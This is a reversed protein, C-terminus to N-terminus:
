RRALRGALAALRARVDPSLARWQVLAIASLAALAPPTVLAMSIERAYAFLAAGTVLCPATGLAVDRLIRARWPADLSRVVYALPVGCSGVVEGLLIALGAAHLGLAKMGLAAVGLVVVSQAVNATSVARLHNISGLYALLPTGLMRLSVALALDAFLGRDFPLAHRTWLVYLPALVPLVALIGLQIATGGLLWSAGFTAGLKDYERKVHFRVMEPQLPASLINAAQLFTSAVTRATAIVPLAAAGLAGTVLLNLGNQQLQAVLTSVTLVLSKGFNRAGVAADAGAHMPSLDPFQRRLDRLLAVYYLLSAAQAVLTTGLIGLGGLAAGAIAVTQVVRAVIGWASFRTFMGAPPLLRGLIGGVSGTLVWAATAIALSAFLHEREVVAPPLGIARPLFGGAGLAFAVAVEVGGIAVATWISSALTRRLAARDAFYLKAMENGVYNQHGNDLMAVLGVLAQLALWVGYREAGWAGLLVPVLLFTQLANLVFAGAGILTGSLARRELTM